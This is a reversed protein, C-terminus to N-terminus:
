VLVELKIMRASIMAFYNRPINEKTIMKYNNCFSNWRFIKKTINSGSAHGRKCSLLGLFQSQLTIIKYSKCGQKRWCFSNTFLKKKIMKAAITLHDPACVTCM